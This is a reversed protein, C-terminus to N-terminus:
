INCAIRGDGGAITLSAAHTALVCGALAVAPATLAAGVLIVGVGIVGTSLPGAIAVASRRADSVRAHLVYTRLGHVVLASPVGRLAAAHGAEHLALGAGAGLGLALPALIAFVGAAAGLQAAVLACVVGIAIARHLTARVCSAVARTVTRTDVPRRRAAAAPIAGAPALRLALQAWSVVRRSRSCGREINVLALRNLAWTFRLVDDRAVEDPQSCALALDRAIQGVTHDRHALVFVGSGNLPWSSGRVRDVLRGEQLSVGAPFSLRDTEALM